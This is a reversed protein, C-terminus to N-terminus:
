RQRTRCAEWAARDEDPAMARIEDEGLGVTLLLREVLWGPVAPAQARPPEAGTASGRVFAWFQDETASLQDRLIHRFLDGGIEERFAHPVKTRLDEFTAV